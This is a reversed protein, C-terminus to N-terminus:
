GQPTENLDGSDGGEGDDTAYGGRESGVGSVKTSRDLKMWYGNDGSAALRGPGRDELEGRQKQKKVQFKQWWSYTSKPNDKKAGNAACQGESGPQVRQEVYNPNQSDVLRDSVEKWQNFSVPVGNGRASVSAIKECYHGVARNKECHRCM